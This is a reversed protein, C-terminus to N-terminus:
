ARNSREQRWRRRSAGASSLGPAPHLDLFEQAALATLRPSCLWGMRQGPQGRLFGHRTHGTPLDPPTLWRIPHPSGAPRCVSVRDLSVMKVPHTALTTLGTAEHGSGLNKAISPNAIRKPRHPM